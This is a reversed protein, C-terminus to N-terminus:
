VIQSVILQWILSVLLTVLCLCGLVTPVGTLKVSGVPLTNSHLVQAKMSFKSTSVIRVRVVAGMLGPEDTILIQEYAKNHGVLHQGDSAVETVLVEYTRGIRDDGYPQYSRFLESMAKTRRKAEVTDIRKMRAAPTGPRPYFQNIFLSPFRYKRVLEMSDEFDEASETPFACIMDTAISISPVHARMFDMVRCFDANSYERRMDSLVADNGAQVPIHLFSYVRPHNLIDAIEQLYDLIYPPNTMGLRMMCGEPIVKVLEQLLDPLVQDMDRGWAGLDESTLWIEKVGEEFAQVARSVLEDIPYSALDGRAQKTKCYTCHNLCGSNIALIEILPNKASKRCISRREERDCVM